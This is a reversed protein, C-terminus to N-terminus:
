TTPQEIKAIWITTRDKYQLYCERGQRVNEFIHELLEEAYDQRAKTLKLEAQLKMELLDVKVYDNVWLSKQLAM